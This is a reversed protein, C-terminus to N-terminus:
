LSKRADAIGDKVEATGSEQEFAGSVGALLM